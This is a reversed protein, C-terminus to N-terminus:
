SVVFDGTMSPHHDCSFKYKGSLDPADFTYGKFVQAGTSDYVAVNHPVGADNNQFNLTIHAGAPATITKQDFAFNSAVLSITVNQRTFAPVSSPSFGSPAPTAALTPTSYSNSSAYTNTAPSATCGMLAIGLAVLVAFYTARNLAMVIV